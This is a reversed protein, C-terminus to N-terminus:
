DKKFVKGWFKKRKKKRERKKKAKENRKKIEDSKKQKNKKIIIERPNTNIPRDKGGHKNKRFVDFLGDLKEEFSDTTDRDVSVLIPVEELYPPCALADQVEYSPEPFEDNAWKRFAKDKYVKNMFRGWIPLATNAGQGLGISRFRVRPSEGGVWAGAVLHPTYGIFWGDAHSQTTGTKGAIDNQLHYQYRLRRATGSDVVSQMMETMLDAEDRSLATEFDEPDYEFSAIVEGKSTEIRSIYHSEPRKGRNALTGYVTLMDYLSVEVAGLAIAPAKPIKSSVGMQQALHRVSDVGNRMILDVAVSNVSKTLAGQMSYVGGYHGDSNEPKWDDYETYTVLRNFYFDCPRFGNKVASAYVVPKFTSGVQRRSRIHDYKFYQHDIGGVWAKLAGTHPDMVLFGANLLAYYYKISDLPSMMKQEDGKYTFITMNVPKKMQEDIEKESLGKAKLGKYRRSKQIEANLVKNSGWPKRGKWHKDFDKQLRSLHENVSEEAYTQLRSDITTYIRLGDTYLNYSKGDPKTYNKIEEALEKRVQERFYTALGENNSERTYNVELPLQQLSDSVAKSIYNYKSMQNLVTNRREIAHDPNRVPNYYTNAKLMGILVAANETKIDKATSGFFQKAAVEVGYINVGFPVTNLYLNLLEEKSYVRELRRAIYMEKTKNIPVSFFRHKKRKYINKALQQSLTSGGGSSQDRLLITRFLVRLWARTDIGRHEFFRADETAILASTLDKSVEDVGVNKRNEVFYKGLLQGDASYVESATHNHIDKLEETSPLKGFAGFRVLQIFFFLSFLGIFGACGIYKVVRSWRPSKASFAAWREQFANKIAILKTKLSQNQDTM